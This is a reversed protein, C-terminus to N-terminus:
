KLEKISKMLDSIQKEKELILNKLNEIENTIFLNHEEFDRLNSSDDVEKFYQSINPIKSNSNIDNKNEGDNNKKDYDDDKSKDGDRKDDDVDMLDNKEGNKDGISNNDDGEEINMNDVNDFNKEDDNKNLSLNSDYKKMLLERIHPKPNVFIIEDYNEEIVPRKISPAIHSQQPFLKLPHVVELPKITEDVLFIKIKIEFEGWGTEYLEFPWKPIVRVKNEFSDHLTFQVEKIFNSINENHVGRVYVCWKYSNNQQGKKGLYMAISGYIFPKTIIENKTESM